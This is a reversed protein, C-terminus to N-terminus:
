RKLTVVIAAQGETPGFRSATENPSLWRMELVTEVPISRLYEGDGVKLDNVYVSVTVDHLQANRTGPLRALEHQELWRPRLTQVAEYATSISAKNREIEEATLVNQQRQAALPAGLAFAAVSSLALLAIRVTHM